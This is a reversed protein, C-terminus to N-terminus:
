KQVTVEAEVPVVKNSNYLGMIYGTQIDVAYGDYEDSLGTDTILDIDVCTDVRMLVTDEDYDPDIFTDSNHLQGFEVFKSDKFTIKM